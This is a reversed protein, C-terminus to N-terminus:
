KRESIFSLADKLAMDCKATKTLGITLPRSLFQDTTTEEITKFSVIKTGSKNITKSPVQKTGNKDITKLSTRNTGSKDTTKLSTAKSVEHETDQFSVKKRGSKGMTKFSTEIGRCKVTDSVRNANDKERIVQIGDVSITKFSTSKHKNQEKRGQTNQAQTKFPTKTCTCRSMTKFSSSLHDQFSKSAARQNRLPTKGDRKLCHDQFSDRSSTNRKNETASVSKSVNKCLACILGLKTSAAHGIVIKKPTKTEVVYFYYDQFSKDSYHQLRLKIIGYNVLRGDDYCELNARSGRLSVDRPYGHKDLAHPFMTRFSDLPLINGEAGNDVKVRVNDIGNWHPLKINLITLIKTKGEPDMENSISAVSKSRYITHFTKKVFENTEQHDQFSCSECLKEPNDQFSKLEISHASQTSSRSRSRDESDESAYRRHRSRSRRKSWSERHTLRHQDRYQSDERDRSRCCTCFHNKNGCRHCYKGWAQCERSLHSQGCRGCTKGPGGKARHGNGKKFKYTTIEDITEATTIGGNSKPWNFDKVMMEHMSSPM